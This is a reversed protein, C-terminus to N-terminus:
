WITMAYQKEGNQLRNLIKLNKGAAFLLLKLPIPIGIIGTNITYLITQM